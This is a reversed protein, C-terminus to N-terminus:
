NRCNNLDLRLHVSFVKVELVQPFNPTQNIFSSMTSDKKYIQVSSILNINDYM